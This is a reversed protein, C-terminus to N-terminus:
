FRYKLTARAVGFSPDADGTGVLSGPSRTTWSYSALDVYLYEAGLVWNDIGYEVGGGAVWGFNWGGTRGSLAISEDPAAASLKSDLNVEGYAVGATGYVLFNDFAYGLRGRVTGYWDSEYNVEEVAQDYGPPYISMESSIDRSASANFGLYNFDGELGFVVNSYQWNYGAIIGATFATQQNNRSIGLADVADHEEPSLPAFGTYFWDTNLSANDLAAGANMGVYGGSWDYTPGALGLDSARVPSAAALVLAAITAAPLVQKM